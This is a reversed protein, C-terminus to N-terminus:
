LYMMLVIKNLVMYVFEVLGLSFVSYFFVLPLFVYILLLSLRPKAGIWLLCLGVPNALLSVSLIFIVINNLAPSINSSPFTISAYLVVGNLLFFLSGTFTHLIKQRKSPQFNKLAQIFAALTQKDRHYVM